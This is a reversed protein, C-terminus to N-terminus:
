LSMVEQRGRADKGSGPNGPKQCRTSRGTDAHPFGDEDDAQRRHVSFGRGDAQRNHQPHHAHQAVAPIVKPFMRLALVIISPIAVCACVVVTLVWGSPIQPISQFIRRGDLLIAILVILTGALLVGVTEFVLSVIVSRVRLGQEKALVVRGFHQAVNGPIYKGIQSVSFIMVAMSLRCSEGCISLIREWARSAALHVLLYLAVAGGFSAVGRRSWQMRYFVDMQRALATGLYALGALLVV